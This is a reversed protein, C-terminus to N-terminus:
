YVPERVETQTNNKTRPTSMQITTHETTYIRNTTYDINKNIPNIRSSSGLSYETWYVQYKRNHGLMLIYSPSESTGKMYTSMRTDKGGWESRTGPTWSAGYLQNSNVRTAILPAYIDTSQQKAIWDGYVPYDGVHHNILWSHTHTDYEVYLKTSIKQTPEDYKTESVVVNSPAYGPVGVASGVGVSMIFLLALLIGFLANSDIKKPTIFNMGLAAFPAGLILGIMITRAGSWYSIGITAVGFLLSISIMTSMYFQDFVQNNDNFITKILERGVGVTMMIAIIAYLYKAIEVSLSSYSKEAQVAAGGGLLTGESFKELALLLVEPILIFKEPWVYMYWSIVFVTTIAPLALSIQTDEDMDLPLFKVLRSIFYSLFWVGALLYGTGYHTSAVLLSFLVPFVKRLLNPLDSDILALIALTFFIVPTANRGGAPYLVYFPYAFTFLNASLFSTTIDLYQKFIYYLTLPILSVFLPNILEYQMIVPVESIISLVPFLVGTQLLATMEPIWNLQDRIYVGYPHGGFYFYKWLSRHYLVSISIVWISFPYINANNTRSIILPAFAILVLIFTLPTQLGLDNVFLVAAATLPLISFIIAMLKLEQKSIDTSIGYQKKGIGLLLLFTALILTIIVFLRKFPHSLNLISFVQDQITMSVMIFGLGLGNAYVLAKGLQWETNTFRFLVVLGIGFVCLIIPLIKIPSVGITDSSTPIILFVALSAFLLWKTKINMM